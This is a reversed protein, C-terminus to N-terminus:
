YGPNNPLLKPNRKILDDSIPAYYAKQDFTYRYETREIKKFIYKSENFVYYPYLAHYTKNELVKDLMRWRKMDWILQNEFALECRRENIIKAEDITSLSATGARQRILNIPVLVDNMTVVNGDVTQGIINVAAEAANLLVEAYRMEMYDVSGSWWGGDHNPDQYKWVLCGNANYLPNGVGCKGQVRMGMYTDTTNASEHLIGPYTEYIGKRVEYLDAPNSSGRFQTGPILITALLRPQAKQFLLDATAYRTPTSETGVNLVFPNGDIDDFLEIWETTVSLEGAQINVSYGAPRQTATWNEPRGNAIKADFIKVFMREKNAATEDIFLNWFNKTKGEVTGDDYKNYLQYKGGNDMAMKAAAYAKKYYDIAQDAPIGILGDLQVTGNKAISAAYLMARSKLNAAIYKNVRGTQLENSGLMSIAKDLDAAVFDFVEKESNRPIQLDEINKGIYTQVSDVIPVGGYSRAMYFYMFARCFYAEGLWHNYETKRSAYVSENAILAEIAVNCYRISEYDWWALFQGEFSKFGMSNRLTPSQAEGTVVCSNNWNAFPMGPNGLPYYLDANMTAIPLRAYLTALAANVGKDTTFIQDSTLVNVPKIDLDNCSSLFFGSVFFFVIYIKLYKMIM